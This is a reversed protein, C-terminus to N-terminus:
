DPGPTDVVQRIGTVAVTVAAPLVGGGEVGGGGGEVVGGGGGGEVVGGGGAVVGGGGGLPESFGNSWAKGAARESDAGLPAVADPIKM